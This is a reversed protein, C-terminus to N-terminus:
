PGAARNERVVRGVTSASVGFRAGLESYTGEGADYAAVIQEDRSQSWGLWDMLENLPTAEGRFVGSENAGMPNDTMDNDDSHRKNVGPRDLPPPPTGRGGGRQWNAGQLVDFVGALLHEAIGWGYGEPDRWRMLPSLAGCERVIVILDRITLRDTGDGLWRLRLGCDIM